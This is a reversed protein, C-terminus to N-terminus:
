CATEAIMAPGCPACYQRAAQAFPAIAMGTLGTGFASKVEDAIKEAREAGETARLADGWADAYPDDLEAAGEWEEDTVLALELEASLTAVARAEEATGSAPLFLETMRDGHPEQWLPAIEDSLGAPWKATPINAWWADGPLVCVVGDEDVLIRGQLGSQTALWAIGHVSRAPQDSDEEEEDSEYTPCLDLRSQVRRLAADLRTPDFPRRSCFKAQEKEEECADTEQVRRTTAETGRTSAAAAAAASVELLEAASLEELLELVLDRPTRGQMASSRRSMYEYSLSMYSGM